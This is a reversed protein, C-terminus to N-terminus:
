HPNTLCWVPIACQRTSACIWRITRISHNSPRWIWCRRSAGAITRSSFPTGTARRCGTRAGPSKWRMIREPDCHRSHSSRTNMRTKTTISDRFSMRQWGTPIARQVCPRTRRPAILAATVAADDRWAGPYRSIGWQGPIEVRAGTADRTFVAVNDALSALDVPADFTLTIAPHQPNVNARGATPTHDILEIADYACTDPNAAHAAAECVWGRVRASRGTPERNRSSFEQVLATFQMRYGQGSSDVRVRGGQVETYLYDGTFDDETTESFSRATMGQPTAYGLVRDAQFLHNALGSFGTGGGTQGDGAGSFELRAMAPAADPVFAFLHFPWDRAETDLLAYFQRAPAVGIASQDLVTLTGGGSLTENWSGTVQMEWVIQRHAEFPTAGMIAETVASPLTGTWDTGVFGELARAFGDPSSLDFNFQPVPLDPLDPLAEIQEQPIELTQQATGPGAALAAIMTLPLARLIM